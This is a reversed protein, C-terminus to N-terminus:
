STNEMRDWTDKIPLVEASWLFKTWLPVNVRERIAEYASSVSFLGNTSQCWVRRDEKHQDPLQLQSLDVGLSNLIQKLSDPFNWQNGEYEERVKTELNGFINRNWCKLAGKLRKLKQTLVFISHGEIPESWSQLVLDKLSTDTTWMKFFKFPVNRPRPITITKDVGMHKNLWTFEFGSHPAEMLQNSHVMDRFDSMAVYLPTRGGKKETPSLYANFDGIMLWARSSSNLSSLEVWLHRWRVYVSSAHIITILGNQSEVTIHKSSQSHLTPALVDHRWLLWLNPVWHYRAGM